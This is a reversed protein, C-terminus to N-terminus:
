EEVELELYKAALGLIELSAGKYQSDEMRQFEVLSLELFKAMEEERIKRSIRRKTLDNRLEDTTYVEQFSYNGSILCEYEEIESKLEEMQSATADSMIKRFLPDDNYSSQIKTHSDHFKRLNEKTKELQKDNYIM